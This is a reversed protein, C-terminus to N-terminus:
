YCLLVFDIKEPAKANYFLYVHGCDEWMVNAKDESDIQCLLKRKKAENGQAWQPYGGFFSNLATKTKLGKRMKDYATWPEEEDIKGCLYSM